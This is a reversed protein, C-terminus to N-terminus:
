VALFESDQAASSDHVMAPFSVCQSRKCFKILGEVVYNIPNISHVAQLSGHFDTSM